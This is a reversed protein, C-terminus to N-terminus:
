APVNAINMFPKAIIALEDPGFVDKAFTFVKKMKQKITIKASAATCDSSLLEVIDEFSELGEKAGKLYSTINQQEAQSIM